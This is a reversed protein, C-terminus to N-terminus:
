PAPQRLPHAHEHERIVVVPRTTHAICLAHPSSTSRKAPGGTKELSSDRDVYGDPTPSDVNAHRPRRWRDRYDSAARRTVDAKCARRSPQGAANVSRYEGAVENVGHEVPLLPREVTCRAPVAHELQCRHLHQARPCRICLTRGATPGAHNPSAYIPRARARAAVSCASTERFNSHHVASSHVARARFDARRCLESLVPARQDSPM